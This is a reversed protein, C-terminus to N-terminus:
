SSGARTVCSSVSKKAGASAAQHSRIPQGSPSSIESGDATLVTRLVGGGQDDPFSANSTAVCGATTEALRDRVQDAEPAGLRAYIALAQKWHHRAKRLERTAHHVRGLGDHASAQERRDSIERAGTLAAAYEGHAQGPQGTALLAEGLGNLAMVEVARNNTERCIELAQRFHGAAQYHRGLRVEVKGLEALATAEEAPNRIDRSVALSQRQCRIARQYQGLRAWLVGLRSLATAEGARDDNQRCLDLCEQQLAAAQQYRGLWFETSGLNGLARAEPGRTGARRYLTVAEWLHANAQQYHCLSLQTVGLCNLTRAQGAQDNIQRFLALARRFRGAAQRYRDQSWEAIGLDTLAAAEAARDGTLHAAQRAVGYIIIAEHEHCGDDLYRSLTNALQIALEPWGHGAAEVAAVLSPRERDLWDRATVRDALPPASVPQRPGCPLRDRDGPYLIGTATASVRLYYDLLRTLAARREDETENAVALESAYSRLLDHMGYRGPRVVEALHARILQAMIRDAHEPPYDTLAALAYRDFDTGPHLGVLRFARATDGDLHRCSWSFVTRVATGQDGGADLLDLSRQQGALEGVLDALPVDPRSTALEAAVRLALPLRCCWRALAAAAAPDVDVRGGILERLLSVAEAMPLLDLDLRRAGDRAVLGALSDRSTVLAACGPTAPLLPRAQEASRANDLVVLVRRGALLSRYRGARENQGPPIGQGPVGLARLLGALADAPSLPQGPDYGRLNVYLQGDPFRGVVQHAWQVALATKGVGATGGIASILVTAPTEESLLATLERLEEARGTFHPVAAPLENPVAPGGLAVAPDGTLIRQHLDRLEAGPELGLEDILIRRAQQYAALAEGRRGDRCLALMLLVHLYERLPHLRTLHQLETIVDAHRGLHVDAHIRTELAQLRLEALRSVERAALLELGADLLPDGRWLALAGRARAAATDWDSARAAARADSLLEEFRAVDLEDTGVRIVYGGPRTGIRAGDTDGLAQRLRKVYNQVTVRASPPPATGWLAEALEEVAVVRGANLLLAALVARQKGPGVPVLADGRRVALSGLLCFETSAAVPRTVAWRCLGAV